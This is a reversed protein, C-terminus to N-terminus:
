TAFLVAGVQAARRNVARRDAAPRCGPVTAGTRHVPDRSPTTADTPPRTSAIEPGHEDIALEQSATSTASCDHARRKLGM